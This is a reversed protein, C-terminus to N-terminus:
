RPLPIGRGAAAAREWVLHAVAADVAGVGLSCAVRLDGTPEGLLAEGLSEDPAPWGTFHGLARYHAFQDVDDVVLRDAGGVLAAPVYASFDVPVVLCRGAVWAPDLRRQPDPAMPGATIVVDAGDVAAPVDSAVEVDPLPGTLRPGGYVRIEAEPNLARVVPVHSRGQEGYGLIAVRRWGEHALHRISVGSAAATRAATIEGADMVALPLGTESDNVVILGSIYPLGRAPNGPYAGVWKMATVDSDRLHAPMAHIFTSARAHVGIKPPNEVAGRAMAVYTEALRDLQEPVSPLLDRVTARDLYTITEPVPATPDM